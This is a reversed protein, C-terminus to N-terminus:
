QFLFWFQIISVSINLFVAECADNSDDQRWLCRYVFEIDGLAGEDGDVLGIKGIRELKTSAENLELNLKAMMEQWRKGLAQEELLMKDKEELDVELQLLRKSTDRLAIEQRDCRARLEPEEAARRKIDDSTRKDLELRLLRKSTDQLAFKQRECRARLEPEEAARRRIDDNTRKDKEVLFETMRRWAHVDRELSQIRLKFTSKILSVGSKAQDTAIKMQKELDANEDRISSVFASAKMYHERFLERDREASVKDRTAEEINRVLAAREMRWDNNQLALQARAEALEQELVKTTSPTASTTFETLRLQLASLQQLLDKNKRQEASLQVELKSIEESKTNLLHM